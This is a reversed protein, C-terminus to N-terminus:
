QMKVEARGTVEARLLTSFDVNRVRIIQGLKGDQEAKVLSTLVIGERELRLRVTEGNKVLLPDMISERTLPDGLSVNRRSVKGLVDEPVRFYSARLNTIEVSQLTVDDATIVKGSSIKRAATLIESYIGIEATIWFSRLRKGAQLIEIPALVKRQGAIGASSSIRLSGETPPLEIGKLNGISRIIIESEKWSTSELIYSKLISAIEDETIQRGQLRIQVSAAGAFVSIPLRGVVPEIQEGIQHRNLITTEGFAPAVCLFINALKELHPKDPGYLDAVDKLYVNNSEVAVEDKLNIAFREAAQTEPVPASALLVVFLLLLMGHFLNRIRGEGLWSRVCSRPPCSLGPFYFHCKRADGPFAFFPTFHRGDALANERPALAHPLMRFPNSLLTLLSNSVQKM